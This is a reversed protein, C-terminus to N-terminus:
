KNQGSGEEAAAEDDPGAQFFGKRAPGTYDPRKVRDGEKVGSLIEAFAGTTVGITVGQRKPKEKSGKPPALMVFRGDKDKGVYEVPLRLVNKKSVTEFTCKASMGSRLKPDAEDLWVEVQYKVVADSSGAAAGQAAPQM